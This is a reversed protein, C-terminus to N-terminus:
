YAQKDHGPLLQWFTRFFIEMDLLPTWHEIYWVDHEVRDKMDEVTKTEGRCGNIQAWGTIGPKALHRVMYDGILASYVETHHEMHPRPGIISMDGLFVNIFQPLEDISSRRLFDGFPTKRPDNETAQLTDAEANQKMSRFKYIRFPKGNYGTRTQRFYLPGANGFVKNGILVFLVVFPYITCLFLSSVILDFVRKSWKAMPSRMPEERYQILTVNGFDVFNMKHHPYGEMTPVYYFDIFRDNCIHVIRDVIDECTAPSLSCYVEHPQNTEIWKFFDDINGLCQAGEPMVSTDHSTFYGLVKYGTTSRGFQLERFLRRTVIDAGVIVVERRNRGNRRLVRVLKNAVLHVLMIAPTAIAFESVIVRRPSIKYVMAVLATFFLATLFSQVIARWLVLLVKIRREHLRLREVSIAGAFAICMLGFVAADASYVIKEELFVTNLLLLLVGLHVGLDVLFVPIKFFYLEKAKQNEM